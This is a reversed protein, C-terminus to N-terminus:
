NAITAGGAAPVTTAHIAVNQKPESLDQGCDNCKLAALEQADVDRDCAPCLIEIRHRAMIAGSIEHAAVETIM